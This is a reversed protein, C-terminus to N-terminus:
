MKTSSAVTCCRLDMCWVTLAIKASYPPCMINSLTKVNHSFIIYSSNLKDYLVAPEAALIM